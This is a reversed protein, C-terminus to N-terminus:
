HDRGAVRHADGHLLARVGDPDRPRLGVALRPQDGLQRRRSRPDLHQERLEHPGGRLLQHEDVGPPPRGCAGRPPRLVTGPQGGPDAGDRGRERGGPPAADGHEVDAGGARLGGQQGRVARDAGHRRRLHAAPQQVLQHRRTGAPLRGRCAHHPLRQRQERGHVPHLGRVHPRHEGLWERGRHRRQALHQGPGAAWGDQQDAADGARREQGTQHVLLPDGGCLHGWARLCSRYQTRQGFAGHLRVAARLAAGRCGPAM